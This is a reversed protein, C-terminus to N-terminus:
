YEVANSSFSPMARGLRATGRVDALSHEILTSLSTLSRDLAAGTAGNPSVHGLRIATLALTAAHIRSRLEISLTDLCEELQLASHDAVSADDRLSYEAVAAAIANDICRDLTRFENLEIIANCESVLDTIAAGLNGCDRVVQAATFGRRLFDRGDFATASPDEHLASVLQDLFFPIGGGRQDAATWGGITQRSEADVAHDTRFSPNRSTRSARRM